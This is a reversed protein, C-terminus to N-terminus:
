IQLTAHIKATLPELLSTAEHFEGRQIRKNVAIMDERIEPSACMLASFYFEGYYKSADIDSFYICRGAYKLYNEFLSRKYMVTNEYEKQKLELKKIKTDHCNNIIATFIPSIIAVFALIVSITITLDFEPM